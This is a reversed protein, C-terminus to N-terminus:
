DMYSRLFPKYPSYFSKTVSDAVGCISNTPSAVLGFVNGLANNRQQAKALALANVQDSHDDVCGRARVVLGLAAPSPRQPVGPM